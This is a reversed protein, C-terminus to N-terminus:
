LCIIEVCINKESIPEFTEFANEFIPFFAIIPVATPVREITSPVSYLHIYNYRVSKKCNTNFKIRKTIFKISNKISM